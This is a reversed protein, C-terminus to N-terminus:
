QLSGTDANIVQGSQRDPLAGASRTPSIRRISFAFALICGIAFWPDDVILSRIPVCEGAAKHVTRRGTALIYVPQNKPMPPQSGASPIFPKRSKNGCESEFVIRFLILFGGDVKITFLPNHIRAFRGEANPGQTLVLILRNGCSKINTDPKKEKVNSFRM